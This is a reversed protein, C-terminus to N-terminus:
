RVHMAGDRREVFIDCEDAAHPASPCAVLAARLGWLPERASPHDRHPCDAGLKCQWLECIELLRFRLTHRRHRLGHLRTNLRLGM